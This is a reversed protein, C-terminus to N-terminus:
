LGEKTEAILHDVVAKIDGDSADYARLQRDASSGHALIDEIPKIYPQIGLEDIEEGLLELLERVLARTPLEETKGFEIMKGDIGYRAARWRNEDILETRYVRFTINRQRLKWLWLVLAQFVGAIAIAEDVRTCIDCIRFEL